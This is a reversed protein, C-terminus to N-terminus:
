NNKILINLSKNRDAEKGVLKGLAASGSQIYCVKQRVCAASTCNKTVASM